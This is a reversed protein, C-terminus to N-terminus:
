VDYQIFPHTTQTLPCIPNLITNPPANVLMGGGGIATHPMLSSSDNSSTRRKKSCYDQDPIADVKFCLLRNCILRLLIACLLLLTLENGLLLALEPNDAVERRFSEELKLTSINNTVYNHCANRLIPTDYKDCVLMYAGINDMSLYKAAATECLQTLDPLLFENSLALLSTIEQTSCTDLMAVDNTYIYELVRRFSSPDYSLEVTNRLSESLGGARFMARFYECRATLIAKHASVSEKEEGDLGVLFTIDSHEESKLLARFSSSYTDYKVANRVVEGEIKKHEVWVEDFPMLHVTEPMEDPSLENVFYFVM